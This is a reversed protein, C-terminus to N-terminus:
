RSVDVESNVCTVDLVPRSGGQPMPAWCDKIVGDDKFDCADSSAGSRAPCQTEMISFNLRQLSSLQIGPAPEPNASLLRFTNQVEPRQNYSDVAQTLVQTYSPPAPLACSGGLVVLVLVWSGLM